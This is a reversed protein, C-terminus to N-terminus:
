ELKVFDDIHKYNYNVFPLVTSPQRILFTSHFLQQDLLTPPQKETKSDHKGRVYGLSYMTACLALLGMIDVVSIM